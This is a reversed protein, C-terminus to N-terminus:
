KKQAPRRRNVRLESELRDALGQLAGFVGEADIAEGQFEPTCWWDVYRRFQRCSSYRPFDRPGTGNHIAAVHERARSKADDNELNGGAGYRLLYLEAASAHAWIRTQTSASDLDVEVSYMAAEWRRPDFPERLVARLSLCQTLYWHMPKSGRRGQESQGFGERAAMEYFRLAERLADRSHDLWTERQEDSGAFRVIKFWAEGIRKSVAGHYAFTEAAFGAKPPLTRTAGNVRRVCGKVAEEPSKGGGSEMAKRKKRGFEDITEDLRDLAADVASRAQWYRQEELQRDIDDPLSAYAVISAWDHRKAGVHADLAGRLNRLAERPDRGCLMDRYLFEVMLRSGAFSLPFQSAVVLPIGARHLEHAFSAGHFTVEGVNGSDCSAATVVLPPRRSGGDFCGSTGAHLVEALRQGSVTEFGERDATYLRLGFSQGSRNGDEAGHALLHVHTYENRACARAISALSARPLVTLHEALKSSAEADKDPIHPLWPDLTKLLLKTQDVPLRGMDPTDAYAFLVRPKRVWNSVAGNIGRVRRTLCVPSLPQLLLWNGDGGGAGRPVKSLEFPLMALEAASVVLELHVLEATGAGVGDLEPVLGHVGELLERMQAGLRETVDRRRAAADLGDGGRYRLDALASLFERHEYPVRVTSISHDGCVGIYDTLPSLLQNHAPGHRLLEVSVKRTRSM